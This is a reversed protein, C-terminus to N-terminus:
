PSGAAAVAQRTERERLARQLAADPHLPRDWRRYSDALALRLAAYAKSGPVADLGAAIGSWAADTGAHSRERVVSRCSAEVARGLFCAFWADGARWGPQELLATTYARAIGAYRELEDVFADPHRAAYRDIDALRGDIWADGTAYAAAENSAPARVAGDAARPAQASVAVPLWALCAALAIRLPHPRFAMRPNQLVVVRSDTGSRLRLDAARRTTM